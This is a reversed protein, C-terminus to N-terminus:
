GGFIAERLDTANRIVKNVTTDNALLNDFGRQQTTKNAISLMVMVRNKQGTRKLRAVCQHFTRPQQCPEIFMAHHCVHQLGDLGFGGSMFQIVIVRCAPDSIFREIAKQKNTDTVDSNVTVVGYDVLLHRLAAVTLKYNAFVVLKKSGLEDLKEAVIHIAESIHSGNGSFHSWNAVIQGLAHTMKSATTADIKGGSPLKLLEEEALKKYLKYHDKDMDYYVPVFLPEETGSYMDEFLVRKSNIKLSEALYELNRYASPNGFFDREEVHQNCFHTYNRYRGPATFKVLGYADTPKNAPTGTLLICPRGVAFDYVTQHAQSEVNSVMTAEDVIVTVPVEAYHQTFRAIEKKFIQIGVLVFDANLDKERREAPTGRYETVTLEPSISRLWRAWQRILLPPMVVLCKNGYSVKHYLAVVTSCLTKGCNGTVFICGNRRLVLFSSPVTFCYQLGDTAPEEWATLTKEYGGDPLPNCGVLYALNSRTFEQVFYEHSSKRDERVRYNYGLSSRVGICALAYQVFDASEKTSTFFKRGRNEDEQISGDWYFVEDCILRLQEPSAKYFQEDFYKIRRPARFTFRIFGECGEWPELTYKYELGNLDLLEMLRSSKRTKKLRVTCSNSENPFHGDAMVAILLRLQEDSIDMGPRSPPDFTTIFRGKWGMKNAEHKNFVAQATDVRFKGTASVYAVRHDKSVKQDVGRTTKFALMDDCPKKIYALPTVYEVKGWQKGPSAYPVFQAVEGGDYTSIRRWGTPSLYETDCDVCGMDLFEGQRALPALDNIVEVQLPHIEEIYPPLTYQSLVLELPTM